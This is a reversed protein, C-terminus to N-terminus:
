TKEKEPTSRLKEGLHASYVKARDIDVMRLTRKEEDVVFGFSNSISELASAIRELAEASRLDPRKQPPIIM